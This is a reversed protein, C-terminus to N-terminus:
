KFHMKKRVALKVYLAFHNNLLERVLKCEEQIAQRGFLFAYDLRGAKIHTAEKCGLLCTDPKDKLFRNGTDSINGREELQPHRANM